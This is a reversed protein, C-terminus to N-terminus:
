EALKNQNIMKIIEWGNLLWDAFPDLNNFGCNRCNDNEDKNSIQLM